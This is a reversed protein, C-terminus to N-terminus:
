WPPPSGPRWPCRAASPATTRGVDDCCTPCQLVANRPASADTLQSSAARRAHHAPRRAAFGAPQRRAGATAECRHATLPVEHADAYEAAAVDARRQDPEDLRLAGGNEVAGTEVEGDLADGDAVEGRPALHVQGVAHERAIGVVDDAVGVDVDDDFRDAADFRGALQDEGREIVALRDDGGVLLQQRVDAGLQVRCGIGGATIEQELRRHRTPDRDHPCQALAQVALRDRPHEADDVAGGVVDEGLHGVGDLLAAVGVVGTRQDVGLLQPVGFAVGGGVDLAEVGSRLRRDDGRDSEAGLDDGAVDIVLPDGVDRRGLEGDGAPEAVHDLQQGDDLAVVAIDAHAHVRRHHRLVM